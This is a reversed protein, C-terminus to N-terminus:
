SKIPVTSRNIKKLRIFHWACGKEKQGLMGSFRTWEAVAQRM